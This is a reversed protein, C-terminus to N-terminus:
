SFLCGNPSWCKEKFRGSLDPRFSNASSTRPRTTTVCWSMSKGINCKFCNRCFLRRDTVQLSAVNIQDEEWENVRWRAQCTKYVLRVHRCPKCVDWNNSHAVSIQNTWLHLYNWQMLKEFCRQQNLLSGTHWHSTGSVNNVGHKKVWTVLKKWENGTKGLKEKRDLWYERTVCATKHAHTYNKWIGFYVAHM